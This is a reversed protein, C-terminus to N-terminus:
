KSLILIRNEILLNIFYKFNIDKKIWNKDLNQWLTLESSYNQFFSKYQLPLYIHWCLCWDYLDIKNNDEITDIIQFFKSLDFRTNLKIDINKDKISNNINKYIYYPNILYQEKMKYFISSRDIYSWFDSFNVANNDFDLWPTFQTRHIDNVYYQLLEMNREEWKYKFEYNLIFPNELDEKNVEVWYTNMESFIKPWKMLCFINPSCTYQQSKKINNKLFKYTQTYEEESEWPFWMISYNHTAIWIRDMYHIKKIKEKLNVWSNWKNWIQENIRESASELWMGCFRAWSKQLIKLNDLTYQIEFRTRFFYKIKLKEKIIKKAFHLIALPPIAEDIFGVSKIDNEKIFSIWKDIFFNYSYEQNLIFKNHSNIACFSCNDWYCKYPVLRATYTNEGLLYWINNKNFNSEIFQEFMDLNTSQNDIDNFCVKWNYYIINKLDRDDIKNNLYSLLLKIGNWYDRNVIYYDIYEFFIGQSNKILNIWQTFDFQENWKSFDVVVKANNYKQKILKAIISIFILENPWFIPIKFLIKDDKYEWIKDSVIDYIFNKIFDSELYREINEQFDSISNLKRNFIIGNSLSLHIWSDKYYDNYYWLITNFIRYSFFVEQWTPLHNKELFSIWRKAQDLKNLIFKYEEVFYLYERKNLHTKKFNILDKELFNKFNEYSFITNWFVNNLTTDSNIWHKETYNFNVITLKSISTINHVKYEM